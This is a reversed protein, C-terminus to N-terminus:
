EKMKAKIYKTKACEVDFVAQLSDRRARLNNVKTLAEKMENEQADGRKRLTEVSAAAANHEAITAQLASDTVAITKQAQELSVEQYLRLGEKRAEIADPFNARLSDIAALAGAYEGREALAETRELWEAAQEEHSKGGCGALTIAAFATAVAYLMFTKMQKNNKYKNEM